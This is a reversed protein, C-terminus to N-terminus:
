RWGLKVFQSAVGVDEAPQESLGVGLGDPEAGGGAVGIEGQSGGEFGSVAAADAALDAGLPADGVVDDFPLVVAGGLGVIQDQQTVAAVVFDVVSVPGDFFM